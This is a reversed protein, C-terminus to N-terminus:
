NNFPSNLISNLVNDGVLTVETFMTDYFIVNATNEIDINRDIYEGDGINGNNKSRQNDFYNIANESNYNSSLEYTYFITDITSTISIIKKKVLYTTSLEPLPAEFEVVQGINWTNQTSEVKLTIEPTGKFQIYALGIKQLENSTTADNRNEYRAIVGKRGTATAIRNIETSNTITQRGKIIPTYTIVIVQGANLTNDSDFKAEGVNYYFDAYQGLDRETQTIFTKSEGNVTISEIQGIKQETVFETRYGDAVITEAQSISGYVEDSTMVQKNRYDNTSYSFSMNNIGNDQFFQKTYQITTGTPLLLPDYFDIAVTNEDVMRTTWRSQTIDALYNFVDYATKELTSYAGIIDDSGTININGVVFGYDAITSVIREIAERITIESLVFDLTEGQSLFDKFDLVQLSCYHPQRPDLSINGTNRIIGCFLLERTPIDNGKAFTDSGSNTYFVNNALDYLGIVGDNKRYCPVYDRVLTTGNWIKCYYLKTSANVYGAPYTGSANFIYANSPTTFTSYTTIAKETDNISMKSNNVKITYKDNLNNTIDVSLRNNSYNHFDTVLSLTGGVLGTLISFNNSTASTRSGFIKASANTLNQIAMEVSHTQKLRLGTNIYQTGSSEIYEVEQYENPLRQPIEEYILCKSYDPPYYFNTTYDKNTDWSKPFVNNLIVSPTNLMEQEIKINKDCLVEVNDIFIQM